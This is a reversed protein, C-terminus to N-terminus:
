DLTEGCKVSGVAENGCECSGEVHGYGLDSWDLVGGGGELEVEQLYIENNEKLRRRPRRLERQGAPKGGFGRLCREEGM